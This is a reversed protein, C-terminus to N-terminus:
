LRVSSAVSYRDATSTQVNDLVFHSGIAIVIAAAFGIFMAKM